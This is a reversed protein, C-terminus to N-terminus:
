SRSSTRQRVTRPPLVGAQELEGIHEKLARHGPPQVSGLKWRFLIEETVKDQSYDEHEARIALALETAHPVWPRKARRAIGRLKGKESQERRKFDAIMESTMPAREAQFAMVAEVLAVIDLALEQLETPGLPKDLKEFSQKLIPSRRARLLMRQTPRLGHQPLAACGALRKTLFTASLTCLTATRSQTWQALASKPRTEPQPFMPEKSKEAM